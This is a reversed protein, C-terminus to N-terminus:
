LYRSIDIYLQQVPLVQRQAPNKCGESQGPEPAAQWWGLPCFGAPLPHPCSCRTSSPERPHDTGELWSPAATTRRTGRPCHQLQSCGPVGWLTTQSMFKDLLFGSFHDSM